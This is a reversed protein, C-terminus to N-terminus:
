SASEEKLIPIKIIVSTGKNPKSVIRLKQGYLRILRSNVNYVGIGKAGSSLIDYIKSKPMGVGTDLVKVLLFEKNSKVSIRIIGGDEKPFLGHRVGNEVIPQLIFPPILCNIEGDIRYIVNLRDSLRAKEIALYSKVYGLETEFPIHEDSIKFSFGSRLYNSLDLLLERAKDPNIRCLTTIINLANFLFHPKIQSQLARIEAKQLMKEQMSSKRLTLLSNLRATLESKEFPKTIYDNAGAEFGLVKYETDQNSTLILIPLDMLNYKKRITRCVEYGSMGPLMVDLIVLDFFNERNSLLDIAQKGNNVHYLKYSQENLYSNLLRLHLVDDDVALIKVAEESNAQPDTTKDASSDPLSSEILSPTINDTHARIDSVPLNFSFESGIGLRSELKISGGHLEVLSKAISLGLGTGTAKNGYIADVQEFSKFVDSFKDQPIGIGTDSVHINIEGDNFDACVKIYGSETFKVANGVLNHLIQQLRNEDAYVDPLTEPIEVYLSLGKEKIITRYLETVISVVQKINVSTKNLVMDRNKLRSFDQLDNVMYILRRVTSTILVFDSAQERNMKGGLQHSIAEVIGMIGYLPSRLEHSTNALFEDKIKDMAQLRTSLHEVAQFSKLFRLSLMFSQSFIFALFGVPILFTSINDLLFGPLFSILDSSELLDYVVTFALITVSAAIIGSGEEGALMIRIIKYMMFGFLIICIFQNALDIVSNQYFVHKTSIVLLSHLGCTLLSVGLLRMLKHRPFLVSIYLLFAPLCLYLTIISIKLTIQPNSDPFFINLFNEGTITSRVAFLICLIAFYLTSRDKRRLVFLVLNYIGMMIIFGLLVMEFGYQSYIKEQIQKETGLFIISKLGAEAFGYNSVQIVMDNYEKDPIFAASRSVMRPSYDSGTKAVVGNTLIKKGNVWMVYSSMAFKLKLALNGPSNLYRPNVKFKLRYTAFGEPPLAKGDVTYEQWGYSAVTKHLPSKPYQSTNFDEPSLLQKWYFEWSGILGVLGDKEFDWESLDLFGNQAIPQEKASTDVGNVM